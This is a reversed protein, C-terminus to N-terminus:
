CDPFQVIETIRNRLLPLTELEFWAHKALWRNNRGSPHPLVFYSKGPQRVAETLTNFQPLYYNQAHRGVYLTLAPTLFRHICPHWTPACEKRPPADANNKYGPFCLGMPLISVKEPTYFAERSMGLWHRLREGSSDDFPIGRHHTQLGPAQGIILIKSKNHLSFIPKPPYPLADACLTCQSVKIVLNEFDSM